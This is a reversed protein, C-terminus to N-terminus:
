SGSYLANGDAPFVFSTITRAHIKLATIAPEPTDADEEDDNGEAKVEPATQSADFIGMNGLKDGAFILAKDPSPHFGLSYIREPTIKIEARM